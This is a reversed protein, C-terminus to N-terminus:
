QLKRSSKSKVSSTGSKRLESTVASLNSLAEDLLQKVEDRQADETALESAKTFLATIGGVRDLLERIATLTDSYGAATADGTPSDTNSAVEPKAAGDTEKKPSPSDAKAHEKSKKAPKLKRIAELIEKKDGSAIVKRQEDAELRAMKLAVDKTIEMKRVVEKAEPALDRALQKNEQLTRESTGMEKAIKATTKTKPPASKAGGGSHQNDGAQARWGLKVLIEDRRIVHEGISIPDLENRILNEDIEALEIQLGDRELVFVEVEEHDLRRHAELRHAGGVLRNNKDIIIPQLQGVMTISQMLESVKGEDVKRKRDEVIIDNIKMKM